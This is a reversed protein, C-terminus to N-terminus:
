KKPEIPIKKLRGWAVYVAMGLILFNFIISSYEGRYTHLVSALLMIISIGIGAYATLKPKIRLLAPLVFGIGGLLESLGIFRILFEPTDTTWPLSISLESIPQSLKMLGAMIFMISLLVQVIWLSINLIRNKTSAM